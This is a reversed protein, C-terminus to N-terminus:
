KKNCRDAVISIHVFLTVYQKGPKRSVWRVTLQWERTSCLCLIHINTSHQYKCIARFVLKTLIILRKLQVNLPLTYEGQLCHYPKVHTECCNAEKDKMLWKEGGTWDKLESQTATPNRSPPAHSYTLIYCFSPSLLWNTYHKKPKKFSHFGKNLCLKIGCELVHLFQARRNPAPIYLQVRKM